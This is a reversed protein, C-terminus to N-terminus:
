DSGQEDIQEELWKHYDEEQKKAYQQEVWEHYRREEYAEQEMQDLIM